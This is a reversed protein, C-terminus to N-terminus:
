RAGKKEHSFVKFGFLYRASTREDKHKRWVRSRLVPWAMGRTFASSSRWFVSALRLPLKSSRQYDALESSSLGLVESHVRDDETELVPSPRSSVGESNFTAFCRSGIGVRVANLHATLMLKYDGMVRYSADFGGLQLLTKTRAFCGQHSYSMKIAMDRVSAMRKPFIRGNSFQTPAVFVDDREGEACAVYEALTRADSLFDDAGLVYFYKGQALRLGKNLADYIGRDPESLVKLDSFKASLGQLCGVTGDQSAGDIILHEHMIPLAAVSQVCRELAKRGPHTLANLTVTVVSIRM